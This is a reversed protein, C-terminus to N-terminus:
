KFIHTVFLLILLIVISAAFLVGIFVSRQQKTKERLKAERKELNQVQRQQVEIAAQTDCITNRLEETREPTAHIDEAEDILVQAADRRAIAEDLQKKIDAIAKALAALKKDVESERGHADKYLKDYTAKHENAERKADELTEQAFDLSNRQTYVHTLANEVARRHRETIESIETHACDLAREEKSIAKRTQKLAKEDPTDAATLTALEEHLAEIHATSKKISQNVHDIEEDRRSVVEKQQSEAVKLARKADAVVKTAEDVKDRAQELKAKYPRLDQRNTERLETLQQKLKDEEARKDAIQASLKNMHNQAETCLATQDEIISKYNQAVDERHALLAKTEDLESHVQKLRVRAADTQKAARRVDRVAEFGEMVTHAGQSAGTSITERAKDAFKTLEDKNLSGAVSSITKNIASTVEELPKETPEDPVQPEKLDEISADEAVSPTLAAESVPEPTSTDPAANDETPANPNHTFEDTM